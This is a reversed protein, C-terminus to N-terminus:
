YRTWPPIGTWREEEALQLLARRDRGQARPLHTPSRIAERKRIQHKRTWLRRLHNGLSLCQCPDAWLPRHDPPPHALDLNPEWELLDLRHVQVSRDQRPWQVNSEQDEQVKSLLLGLGERRM